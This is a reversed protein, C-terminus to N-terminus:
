HHRRALRWTTFRGPRTASRPRVYIAPILGYAPTIVPTAAKSTQESM